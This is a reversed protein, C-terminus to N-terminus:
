GHRRRSPVILRGTAHPMCNKEQFALATHASSANMPLATSRRPPCSNALGSHTSAPTRCTSPTCRASNSGCSLSMNWPNLPNVPCCLQQLHPRPLPHARIALATASDAIALKGGWRAPWSGRSMTRSSSRANTACASPINATCVVRPSQRLTSSSGAATCSVLTVAMVTYASVSPRRPPHSRARGNRGALSAAHAASAARTSGSPDTVFTIPSVPILSEAACYWGLDIGNACAAGPRPPTNCANAAM